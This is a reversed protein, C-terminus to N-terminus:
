GIDDCKDDIYASEKHSKHLKWGNNLATWDQESFQDSLPHSISAFGRREGVAMPQPAWTHGTVDRTQLCKQLKQLQAAM